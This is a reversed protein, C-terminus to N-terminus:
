AIRWIRFGEREKRRTIQIGARKASKAFTAHPVTTYFSDGIELERLRAVVDGRPGHIAPLPVNKEIAGIMRARRASVIPPQLAVSPPTPKPATEGVVLMWIGRRGPVSAALGKKRMVSLTAYVSSVGAGAHAAMAAVSSPSRERLAELLRAALPKDPKASGNVRVTRKARRPAARPERPAKEPAASQAVARRFINRGARFGERFLEGERVLQALTNGVIQEDGECSTCHPLVERLTLGLGPDALRRFAGLIEDRTAM